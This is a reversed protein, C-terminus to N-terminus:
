FVLAHHILKLTRAFYIVGKTQEGESNALASNEIPFYSKVKAFPDAQKEYLARKLQSPQYVM